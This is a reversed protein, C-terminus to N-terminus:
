ELSSTRRERGAQLPRRGCEEIGEAWAVVMVLALCERERMGGQVLVARHLGAPPCEKARVCAAVARELWLRLPARDGVDGGTVASGVIAWQGM